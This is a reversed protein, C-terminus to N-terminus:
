MIERNHLKIANENPDTFYYGTSSFLYTPKIKELTKYHVSVCMCECMKEQVSGEM